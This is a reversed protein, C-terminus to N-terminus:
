SRKVYNLQGDNNYKFEWTDSSNDAYKQFASSAFGNSEIKIEITYNEKAYKNSYYKMIVINSNNASETKSPYEFTVKGYSDFIEEVLGDVNYKITEGDISKPLDGTFANKPGFNAANGNGNENESGNKDNDSCSSFSLGTLILTSLLLLKAIKMIMFKYIM